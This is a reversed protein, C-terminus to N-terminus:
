VNQSTLILSTILLFIQIPHNLSTLSNEVSKIIYIFLFKDNFFLYNLDNILM